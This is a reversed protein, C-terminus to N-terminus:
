RYKEALALALASLFKDMAVHAEPTFDDPFMAALVVLINHSLIKFNAPDVRLQFAHLESLNLLGSTLDDIKSVAEAVGGMVTKGHKRVPASGPSLDKWHSFYTKTQPYVVLMRSLADNGIDDAKGSVKSWLDRVAAKDKASLSM